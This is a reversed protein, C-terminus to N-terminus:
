DEYLRLIDEATERRRIVKVNGNDIMVEAPRLRNNYNSAMVFGYAGADRIVVVDGEVVDPFHIHTAFIDSNECIQGCINVIQKNESKEYVSIRHKAGYLAPRILTNMGSDIGVFTKYSKKVGTVKAIIFGANAVLFRGPELFLEPEGLSYKQCKERFEQAVLRATLDVDMEEEEDDYPVGLGGGIDVYEPIIGLRNFMEGTITMLKDVIEAFYYPELNNSGTMMHIGFRTIGLEQAFKYTDYAKEYPVGFKADTGGTVIGEFGGKGIGPNIRFAIRDPIAIKALKKLSNIDDLNITVNSNAISRLDNESEYNGTYLMSGPEYGARQSLLLEVPSSCDVGCGIENFVKLINLNSNAKVSFHIKTKPYYKSFASYLKNYNEHIKHKDYVYLPTGFQEALTKVDINAITNM